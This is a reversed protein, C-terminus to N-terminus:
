DGPGFDGIITGFSGGWQIVPCVYSIETGGLGTEEKEPCFIGLETWFM